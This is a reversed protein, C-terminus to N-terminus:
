RQEPTRNGAAARAVPRMYPRDDVHGVRELVFYRPRARVDHYIRGIYEGLLGMGMLQVGVFVFLASLVTFVGDVAWVAGHVLRLALLSAACLFGALALGIGAISLLRLPFDTVGTLLDFHLNVLKMASYKSRDNRRPAHEVEVEATRGAFCNALIPVFM